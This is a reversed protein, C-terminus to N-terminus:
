CSSRSESVRIERMLVLPQRNLIRAYEIITRSQRPIAAMRHTLSEQNIIIHILLRSLIGPCRKLDELEDLHEALWLGLVFFNLDQVFDDLCKFRVKIGLM